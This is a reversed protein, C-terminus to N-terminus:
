RPLSLAGRGARVPCEAAPGHAVARTQFVAEGCLLVGPTIPAVPSLPGSLFIEGGGGGGGGEGGGGGRARWTRKRLWCRRGNPALRSEDVFLFRPRHPILKYVETMPFILAPRRGRSARKKPGRPAKDIQNAVISVTIPHNGFLWCSGPHTGACQVPTTTSPGPLQAPCTM